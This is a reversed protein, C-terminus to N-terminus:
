KQLLQFYTLNSVLLGAVHYRFM